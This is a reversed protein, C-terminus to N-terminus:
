RRAREGSLQDLGVPLRDLATDGGLSLQRCVEPDLQCTLFPTVRHEVDVLSLHQFLQHEGLLPM